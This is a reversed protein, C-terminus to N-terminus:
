VAVEDIEVMRCSEVKWDYWDLRIGIRDPGELAYGMRCHGMKDRDWGCTDNTTRYTREGLPYSANPWNSPSYVIEATADKGEARLDYMKEVLETYEMEM